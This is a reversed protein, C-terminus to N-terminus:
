SAIGVYFNTGGILKVSWEFGTASQTSMSDAARAHAIADGFRGISRKFIGHTIDPYSAHYSTLSDWNLIKVLTPQRQAVPFIETAQYHIELSWQYFAAQGGEEFKEMILDHLAQVRESKETKEPYALSMIATELDNVSFNWLDREKIVHEGYQGWTKVYLWILANELNTMKTAKCLDVFYVFTSKLGSKLTM